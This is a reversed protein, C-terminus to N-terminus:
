GMRNDENKKGQEVVVTVIATACLQLAALTEKVTLDTGNTLDIISKALTRVKDQRM